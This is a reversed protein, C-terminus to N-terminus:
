RILHGSESSDFLFFVSLLGIPELNFIYTPGVSYYLVTTYNLYATQINNLTVNHLLEVKFYCSPFFQAAVIVKLISFPREAM